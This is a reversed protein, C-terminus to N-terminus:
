VNNMHLRLPLIWQTAQGSVREIRLTADDALMLPVAQSGINARSM